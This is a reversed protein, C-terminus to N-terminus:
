SATHVVFLAHQAIDGGCMGGEQRHMSKGAARCSIKM